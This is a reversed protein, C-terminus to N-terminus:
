VIPLYSKEPSYPKILPRKFKLQPYNTLFNDLIFIIFPSSSPPSSSSRPESFTEALSAGKTLSTLKIKVSAIRSMQGAGVGVLQKDYSFVIANSKVYKVM